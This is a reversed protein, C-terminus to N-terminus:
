AVRSGGSDGGGDGGLDAARDVIPQHLGITGGPGGAEDGFEHSSRVESSPAGRM